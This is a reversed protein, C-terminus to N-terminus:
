VGALVDDLSRDHILRDTLGSIRGCGVCRAALALWSPRGDDATSIGAAIEMLSQHCSPCEFTEPFTWREDSDFLSTMRACAVCRRRAIGTHPDAQVYGCFPEPNDPRCECHLLVPQTVAPCDQLKGFWALLDASDEGNWFTSGSHSDTHKRLAM